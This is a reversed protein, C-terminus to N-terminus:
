ARRAIKSRRHRRTSKKGNMRITKAALRSKVPQSPAMDGPLFDSWVMMGDIGDHVAAEQWDRSWVTPAPKWRKHDYAIAVLVGPVHEYGFYAVAKAEERTHDATTGRLMQRGAKDYFAYGWDDRGFMSEFFGGNRRVKRHGRSTRKRSTRKTMILAKAKWRADTGV